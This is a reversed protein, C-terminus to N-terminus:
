CRHMRVDAEREDRTVTHRALERQLTRAVALHWLDTGRLRWWAALSRPLMWGQAASMRRWSQRAPKEQDASMVAGGTAGESRVRDSAAPM